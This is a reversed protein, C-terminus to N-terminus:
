YQPTSFFTYSFSDMLHSYVWDTNGYYDRIGPWLLTPSSLDKKINFSYLRQDEKPKVSIEGTMVKRLQRLDLSIAPHSSAGVALSDGLIGVAPMVLEAQLLGSIPFVLLFLVYSVFLSVSKM